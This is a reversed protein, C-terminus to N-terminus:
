LSRYMAAELKAAADQDMAPLLHAYIDMTMAITTHGLRESVVKASVGQELLLSAHTHRLDHLRIVPLEFERVLRRFEITLRDPRLHRGTPTTAVLDWKGGWDAVEAFQQDQQSRARRLADVVSPAISLTRAQSTKTSLLRAVGDVISLARRITVQGAELNVDEWRLGLLEGRRAGTGLALHWLARWRHDEVLDLFRRAQQVTWVQLGTRVDIAYPDRKPTRALEAPNRDMLDDLQADRLARHLVAHALQVTRPSLPKGRMGGSALLQAYVAELMRRDLESLHRDGLHPLLYSHVAQRYCHLTTPRLQTARRELWEELYESVLPDHDATVAGGEDAAGVM